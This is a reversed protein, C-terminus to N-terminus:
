GLEAAKVLGQSYGLLIIKGQAGTAPVYFLLQDSYTAMVGKTSVAVGSLAKVSGTPNVAAGAEVPAVKTTEYLNVAVIAGADNTALAIAEAPGLAHAFTIAATTPLAAAQAKKAALGVAERLTDGDAEFDLFSNSEVDKELIDAYALALENPSMRLLPSDPALRATGVSAEAVPPINQSAELAYSVKYDSRPDAQVLFLALPPNTNDEDDKLVVFIARPWSDTQQPLTIVVPWNPIPALPTLSPDATIIAYNALRLELAAATFRTEILTADRAADAEEAVLSIRGIIREVQRVTAAPAPMGSDEPPGSAEPSPASTPAGGLDPWFNASCGSLVLSGVLVVPVAIMGRTARRGSAPKQIAKRSPKYRPQRPVKPMKQPKRRPGGAKRMHNTAWLLFGLGMLLVIAGGGILPVSWPTSNDLPWSLGIRNPAPAVGDSVIIFSVSAPVNVTLTLEKDTVFDDLWLDSGNPDPVENESGRVLESVLEGTVSDVSVSNYAADGVWALVDATRGYAAFVEGPGQLLLTQSGEFANLSAGDIVSVAADTKVITSLAVEDPEALITRQAIGYGIMIAALIFSIIALVFRM